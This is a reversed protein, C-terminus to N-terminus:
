VIKQITFEWKLGGVNGYPNPEPTMGHAYCLTDGSILRWGEPIKCKSATGALWGNYVGLAWECGFPAQEMGFGSYVRKEPQIMTMPKDGKEYCGCELNNNAKLSTFLNQNLKLINGRTKEYLPQPINSFLTPNDKMQQLKEKRTLSSSSWLQLLTDLLSTYEEESILTTNKLDELEELQKKLENIIQTPVEMPKNQQNKEPTNQIVNNIFNILKRVDTKKQKKRKKKKKKKKKEIYLFERHLRRSNLFSSHYSAM